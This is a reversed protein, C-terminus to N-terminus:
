HHTILVLQLSMCKVVIIIRIVIRTIAYTVIVSINTAISTFLLTCHYNDRQSFLKAEKCSFFSSNDVFKRIVNTVITVSM